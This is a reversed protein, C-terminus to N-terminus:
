WAEAPPAKPATPTQDDSDGDGRDRADDTRRRRRTLVVAAVGGLVIVVLAAIAGAPPGSSKQPSWWYAGTISGKDAGVKIPITYDAVKQRQDKDKVQPPTGKGMYHMRHDHWQFSGTRDLTKWEPTAKANAASPVEVNAYRDNNLYYAPSRLNQQVTGDALIRAYPEDQYGYLLVDQKSRNDLQFRDDRNLVQLKVGAVNPTVARIISEMNPNGQHASAVPAVLALAALVGLVAWSPRRM